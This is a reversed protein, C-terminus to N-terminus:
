AQTCDLRPSARGEAPVSHTAAAAIAGAARRRASAGSAGEMKVIDFLATEENGRRTKAGPNQRGEAGSGSGKTGAGLPPPAGPPALRSDLRARLARRWAQSAHATGRLRSAAERREVTANDAWPGSGDGASRGSATRLSWATPRNRGAAAGPTEYGRNRAATSAVGREAMLITEPSTGEDLSILHRIHRICITTLIYGRM